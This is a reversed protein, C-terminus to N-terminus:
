CVVRRYVNLSVEAAVNPVDSFLTINEPPAWNSRQVWNQWDKDFVLFHNPAQAFKRKRFNATVGWRRPKEFLEPTVILKVGVDQLYKWEEFDTSSFLHVLDFDKLKHILPDFFFIQAGKERLAESFLRIWKLKQDRMSRSLFAPHAWFLIRLSDNKLRM